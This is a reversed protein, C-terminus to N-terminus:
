SPSGGALEDMLWYAQGSGPVDRVRFGRRDLMRRLKLNPDSCTVAHVIWEVRALRKKSAYRRALVWRTLLVGEGGGEIQALEIVLRDPEIQSSRFSASSRLLAQRFCLPSALSSWQTWWIMQFLCFRM